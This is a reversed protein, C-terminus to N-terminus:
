VRRRRREPRDRSRASRSRPPPSSATRRGTERAPRAAVVIKQGIHRRRRHVVRLLLRQRALHDKNDVIGARHAAGRDGLGLGAQEVRKPSQLRVVPEVHDPEIVGHVHQKRVHDGGVAVMERLGLGEDGRQLRRAAGLHDRRHAGRERVMMGVAVRTRCTTNRVSPQMPLSCCNNSVMVDIRPRERTNM